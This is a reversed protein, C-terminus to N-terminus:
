SKENQSELIKQDILKVKENVMHEFDHLRSDVTKRTATIKAEVEEFHNTYENRLLRESKSMQKKIQTSIADNDLTATDLLISKSPKTIKKDINNDTNFQKSLKNIM